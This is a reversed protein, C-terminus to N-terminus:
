LSFEEDLNLVKRRIGHKLLQVNFNFLLGVKWGGLKLYSLLQADNLPTLDVVAKIEVLVLSEVILDARYGCALKVGKYEVSIPKQREFELERVALERCLCMEYASELLGPGLARHVEMAAGIIEETLQRLEM